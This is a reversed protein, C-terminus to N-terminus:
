RTSPWVIEGRRKAPDILVVGTAALQKASGTPAETLYSRLACSPDADLTTPLSRMLLDVRRGRYLRYERPEDDWKGFRSPGLDFHTMRRDAPFREGPLPSSLGCTSTRSATPSTAGRLSTPTTCRLGRASHPAFVRSRYEPRKQFFRECDVRAMEGLRALDDMTIPEYSRGSDM